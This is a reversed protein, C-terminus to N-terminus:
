SHMGARDERRRGGEKKQKKRAARSPVITPICLRVVLLWLWLRLVCCAVRLVCCAVRLVCRELGLEKVAAKVEDSITQSWKLAEETSYTKDTLNSKLVQHIVEQVKAPRFRSGSPVPRFFPTSDRGFSCVAMSLRANCQITQRECWVVGVWVRGAGAKFEAQWRLRSLTDIPVDREILLTANMWVRFILTFPLTSQKLIRGSLMHTKHKRKRWPETHTRHAHAHTRAHTQQTLGTSICM